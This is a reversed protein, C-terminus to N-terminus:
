IHSIRAEEYVFLAQQFSIKSKMEDNEEIVESVVVESLRKGKLSFFVYTALGLPIVTISASLLFVTGPLDASTAQFCILKRLKLSNNSQFFKEFFAVNIKSNPM